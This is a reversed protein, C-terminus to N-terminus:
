GWPPWWPRRQPPTSPELSAVADVIARYEAVATNAIEIADTSSVHGPAGQIVRVAYAAGYTAAWIQAEVGALHLTMESVVGTYLDISVPPRSQFNDSCESNGIM